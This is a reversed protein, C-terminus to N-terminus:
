SFNSIIKKSTFYWILIGPYIIRFLTYKVISPQLVTLVFLVFVYISAFCVTFKRGWNKRKLIGVGSIIYLLCIVMQITIAVKVTAYTLTTEIGRSKLLETITALVRPNTTLSIYLLLNALFLVGFWGVNIMGLILIGRAIQARQSSTDDM